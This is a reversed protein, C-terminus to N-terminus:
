YNKGGILLALSLIHNTNLSKFVEFVQMALERTPLVVLAGLGDYPTWKNVYLNEILPILYALTKGSGTKSAGLIDREALAHPIVCRQIETM